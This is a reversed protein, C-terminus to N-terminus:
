KTFNDEKGVFVARFGDKEALADISGAIVEEPANDGGFADILIDM